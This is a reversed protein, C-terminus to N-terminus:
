AYTIITSITFGNSILLFIFSGFDILFKGGVINKTKIDGHIIGMEHLCMLKRLISPYDTDMDGELREMVIAAKIKDRDKKIIGSGYM